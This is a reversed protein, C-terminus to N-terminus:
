SLCNRCAVDEGHSCRRAAINEELLGEVMKALTVVAASLNGYMEAVNAGTFAMGETRIVDAEVDTQIMRAVEVARRKDKIDM